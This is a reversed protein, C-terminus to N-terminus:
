IKADYKRQYVPNNQWDAAMNIAQSFSTVTAYGVGKMSEALETAREQSHPGLVLSVNKGDMQTWVSAYYNGASM